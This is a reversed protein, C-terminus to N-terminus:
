PNVSTAARIFRSLGVLSGNHTSKYLEELQKRSATAHQNHGAKSGRAFAVMAENVKGMSRLSLGTYRYAEARLMSDATAKHAEQFSSVAKEYDQQRYNSHGIIVHAAAINTGIYSQWQSDSQRDRVASLGEIAKSAFEAAQQMKGKMYSIKMLAPYITYCDKPSFHACAATGYRETKTQDGTNLASVAVIYAAQAKRDSSVQKSNYLREAYPIAQAYRQQRFLANAACYLATRDDPRAALIKQAEALVEAYRGAELMQTLSQDGAKSPTAHLPLASCLLALCLLSVTRTLIAPSKM